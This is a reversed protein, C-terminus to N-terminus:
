ILGRSSTKPRRSSRPQKGMRAGQGDSFEAGGWFILFVPTNSALVQNGLLHQVQEPGFQPKFVISPQLREELSELQLRCGNKTSRQAKQSRGAFSFVRRLHNRLSM